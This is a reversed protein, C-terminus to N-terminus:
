KRNEHGFGYNVGEKLAEYLNSVGSPVVMRVACLKGAVCSLYLLCNAYFCIPVAVEDAKAIGKLISARMLRRSTPKARSHRLPPM